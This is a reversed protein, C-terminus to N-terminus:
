TQRDPGPEFDPVDWTDILPVDGIKRRALERAALDRLRSCDVSVARESGGGLTGDPVAAVLQLDDATVYSAASEMLIALAEAGARAAELPDPYDAATSRNSQIM